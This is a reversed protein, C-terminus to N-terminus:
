QNMEKARKEMLRKLAEDESTNGPSSTAATSQEGSANSGSSGNTRGAVRSSATSLQWEGEDERRLQQGVKIEFEQKDNAIKVCSPKIEKVEYDAIKEGAKVSKKYDSSSGDFFAFNGKEYSMTGVLSLSQVVPVPRSKEPGRRASRPSRNQNFINRESIIRFSEFSTGLTAPAAPANTAAVDSAQVGAGTLASACVVIAKWRSLRSLNIAELRKLLAKHGCVRKYDRLSLAFTATRKLARRAQCFLDLRTAVVSGMPKHFTISAGFDEKAADCRCSFVGAGRRSEAVRSLYSQISAFM